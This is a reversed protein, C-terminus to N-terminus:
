GYLVNICVTCAPRALLVNGVQEEVTYRCGASFIASVAVSATGDTGTSAGAGFGRLRLDFFPVFPLRRMEELDFFCIAGLATAAGAGDPPNGVPRNSATPRGTTPRTPAANRIELSSLLPDLFGPHTTACVVAGPNAQSSDYGPRECSSRLATALDIGTWSTKRQPQPPQV